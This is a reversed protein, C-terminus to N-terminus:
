DKTKEGDKAEKRKKRGFGEAKERLRKRRVGKEDRGEEMDVIAERKKESVLQLMERVVRGELSVGPEDVYKELKRETREEIAEVLKVDYQTVFTIVEGSRGARATRGARHIYDDPDRPVDFNVVLDVTPIDLGRSAVDTAVLIRAAQARFRGLSDIRHRQPMDSHLATVRHELLRLIRALLDASSTRNVFIIASKPTNLPTSLLTHLFAERTHSNLLIYHQSLTPPITMKETNTEHFFLPRREDGRKVDRQARLEDSMTATFLLTQRGGLEEKKSKPVVSMCVGLDAKFTESLLRDAEDLVVVKTRRLGCITDEGSSKIHDALRGPTAVVIDPRRALELAQQRMDAGGILLCVKANVAASLVHFQEAIQLALERTPTLVLAFIGSPDQSWIHLIPAAFAVTKGSGTRSGGICDNGNLIAPICAAQIPTPKSIRMASLADVLWRDLGISAFDTNPAM